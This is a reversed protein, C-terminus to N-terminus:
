VGLNGKQLTKKNGLFVRGARKTSLMYIIYIRVASLIVTLIATYIIVQPLPSGLLFEKINVSYIYWWISFLPATFLNWWALILAIARCLNNRLLIGIGILFTFLGLIVVYRHYIELLYYNDGLSEGSMLLLVEWFGSVMYFIGIINMHINALREKDM